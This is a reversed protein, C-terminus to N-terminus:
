RQALSRGNEGVGSEGLLMGGELTLPEAHSIEGERYCPVPM